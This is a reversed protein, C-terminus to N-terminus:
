SSWNKAGTLQNAPFITESIIYLCLLVTSGHKFELTITLMAIEVTSSSDACTHERMHAVSQVSKRRKLAVEFGKEEREVLSACAARKTNYLNVTIIIIM